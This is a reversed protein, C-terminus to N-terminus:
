PPFAGLDLAQRSKPKGKARRKGGLFYLAKLSSFIKGAYSFFAISNGHVNFVCILGRFGAAGGPRM